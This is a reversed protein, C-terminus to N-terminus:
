ALLRNLQMPTMAEVWSMFSNHKGARITFCAAQAKSNPMLEQIMLAFEKQPLHNHEDLIHHVLHGMENLKHVKINFEPAFEPFHLLFEDLDDNLFLEAFDPTGNGKVRHLHCYIDSKVKARGKGDFLIVGEHDSGRVNVFAKIAEPDSISYSQAVKFGHQSGVEELNLEEFDQSRDRVALLPLKPEPYDVVIKNDRHCLEFIYCLSPDLNEKSYGVKEFVHWFLEAFSRGTNGVESAAAVSGSTSVLWQDGYHFTKIISGDYKEFVQTNAWDLEHCGPEGINFFRDFAYAVLSFQGTNPCREVVAGRCARVLPLSKDAMISGYKLNYLNPYRADTAVRIDYEALKDLPNDQSNLWDILHNRLEGSM